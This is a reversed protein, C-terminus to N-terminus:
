VVPQGRARGSNAVIPALLEQQKSIPDKAPSRSAPYDNPPRALTDGRGKGQSECLWEGM